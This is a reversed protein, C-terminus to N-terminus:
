TYNCKTTHRRGNVAGAVNDIKIKTQRVNDEFNDDKVTNERSERVRRVVEPEIFGAHYEIFGRTMEFHEDSDKMYNFFYWLWQADSVDSFVAHDVPVGWM